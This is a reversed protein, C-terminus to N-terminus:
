STKVTYKWGAIQGSLPGSQEFAKQAGDQSQEQCFTNRSLEDPFQAKRAADNMCAAAVDKASEGTAVSFSVLGVTAGSAGVLTIEVGVSSGAPLTRNVVKGTVTVTTQDAGPAISLERLEVPMLELDELIKLAAQRAAATDGKLEGERKVARARILELNESTPDFERVKPIQTLLKAYLGQLEAKVAADAPAAEHKKELETAKAYTAQMENFYYDRSYPNMEIAKGFLEAALDYNNTTFADVGRQGRMQAINLRSMEAFSKWQQQGASDLKAFMEGKTAGIAREFAQEAKELEGKNAYLSGINLLAEPRKDYMKQAAELTTLARDPENADMLEVGAQFAELWAAEREMEADAAAAPYMAVAKAFCTDAALYDGAGANAQGAVFWLKANDPEKAFGEQLAALAQRYMEQRSERDPRTMALGIFKDADKTWKNDKFKQAAAEGPLLAGLALAPLLWRLRNM